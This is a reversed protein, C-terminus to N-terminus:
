STFLLLRTIVYLQLLCKTVHSTRIHYLENIKDVCTCFLLHLTKGKWIINCTNAPTICEGRSKM